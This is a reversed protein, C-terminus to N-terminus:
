QCTGPLNYKVTNHPHHCPCVSLLKTGFIATTELIAPNRRPFSKSLCLFSIQPVHKGVQWQMLMMWCRIRAANKGKNCQGLMLKQLIVGSKWLDEKRLRKSLWRGKWDKGVNQGTKQDCCSEIPFMRWFCRCLREFGAREAGEAVVAPDPPVLVAVVCLLKGVLPQPRYGPSHKIPATWPGRWSQMGRSTFIRGVHSQRSIPLWTYIYIYM